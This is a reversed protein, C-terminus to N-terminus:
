WGQSTHATVTASVPRCSPFVRGHCLGAPVKSTCHNLLQMVQRHVRVGDEDPINNFDAIRVRGEMERHSSQVSGDMLFVEAKGGDDPCPLTHRPTVRDPTQTQKHPHTLDSKSPPWYTGNESTVGYPQLLRQLNWPASQAFISSDEEIYHVHPLRM